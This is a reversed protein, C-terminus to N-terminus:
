ELQEAKSLLVFEDVGMTSSACTLALWLNPSALRASYVEVTADPSVNGRIWCPRSESDVGLQLRM